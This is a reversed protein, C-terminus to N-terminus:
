HWLAVCPNAMPPRRSAASFALDDGDFDNLLAFVITSVNPKSLLLQRDTDTVFRV